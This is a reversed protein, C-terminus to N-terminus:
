YRQIADVVSKSNTEFIVRSYGRQSLVKLAELLAISEGEVISCSGDIWTTKAMIFCDGHDRLCWGISTKNLNQHFAADVNCKYWGLM